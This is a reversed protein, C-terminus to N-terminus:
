RYGASTHGDQWRITLSHLVGSFLSGTAFFTGASLSSSSIVFDNKTGDAKVQRVTGGSYNIGYQNPTCLQFKLNKFVNDTDICIAEIQFNSWNRGVGGERWDGYLIPIEKDFWSDDMSGYGSDTNHNEDGFYAEPIEVDDFKGRDWLTINLSSPTNKISSSDVYGAWFLDTDTDLTSGRKLVFISVFTNNGWDHGELDSILSAVEPVGKSLSLVTSGFAYKPDNWKSNFKATLKGWNSVAAVFTGKLSRHEWSTTANPQDVTNNAAFKYHHSYVSSVPNIGGFAWSILIDPFDMVADDWNPQTM